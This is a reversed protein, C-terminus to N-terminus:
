LLAASSSWWFRKYLTYIFIHVNKTGKEQCNWCLGPSRSWIWFLFRFSLNCKQGFIPSLRSPNRVLGAGFPVLRYQNSGRHRSWVGRAVRFCGCGAGAGACWEFWGTPCPHCPSLCRRQCGPSRLGSVIHLTCTDCVTYAYVNGIRVHNYRHMHSCIHLSLYKIRTHKFNLAQKSRPFHLEFKSVLNFIHFHVFVVEKRSTIKRLVFKPEHTPWDVSYFGGNWPCELLFNASGFIKQPTARNKWWAKNRM